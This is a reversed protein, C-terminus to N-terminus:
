LLSKQLSVEDLSSKNIVSLFGCCKHQPQKSCIEKPSDSFCTGILGYVKTHPPVNNKQNILM